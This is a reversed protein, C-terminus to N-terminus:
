IALTGRALSDGSHTADADFPERSVDVIVYGQEVLEAPVAFTQDTRGPELVGISVMREGDRNILWVELYGDDGATIADTRLALDTVGDHEVLDAVGLRAGTDLTDLDAQAVVTTQQAPTRDLAAVGIGGVVLGAAAAGVVGLFTRRDISSSM